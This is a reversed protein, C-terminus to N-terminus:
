SPLSLWCGQAFIVDGMFRVYVVYRQAALFSILWLCLYYACFIHHLNSMYHVEPSIFHICYLLIVAICRFSSHGAM